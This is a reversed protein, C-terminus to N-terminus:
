APEAARTAPARRRQRWLVLAFLLVAPIYFVEKAVRENPLSLAAIEVPEDAYFDFTLALDEFRSAPLPEELLAAGEEISVLLGNRELRETGEGAAGLPVVLSTERMLDPDNFDPGSVTIRLEQDATSSGSVELVEALGESLM